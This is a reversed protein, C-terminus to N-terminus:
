AGEEDPNRYEGSHLTAIQYSDEYIIKEEIESLIIISKVVSADVYKKTLEIIGEIVEKFEDYGEETFYSRTDNFKCVRPVPLDANCKDFYDFYRLKDFSDTIINSKLENVADAQFVGKGDVEFRYLM